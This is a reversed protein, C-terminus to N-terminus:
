LVMLKSNDLMCIDGYLHSKLYISSFSCFFMFMLVSECEALFSSFSDVYWSLFPMSILPNYKYLSCHFEYLFKLFCSVFHFYSNFFLESVVCICQLTTKM